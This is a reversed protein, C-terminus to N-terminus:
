FVVLSLSLFVFFDGSVPFSLYFYLSSFLSLSLFPFLSFAVSLPFSFYLCLSSLFSFIISSILFLFIFPTIKRTISHKCERLHTCCLVLLRASIPVTVSCPSLSSHSFPHPKSFCFSPSLPSCVSLNLSLSACAHPLLLLFSLAFALAFPPALARALALALALTFSLTRTCSLTLFFSLFLARFLFFAHCLSRSHFVTLFHFALHSLSLTQFATPPLFYTCM